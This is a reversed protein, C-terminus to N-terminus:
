VFRMIHSGIGVTTDHQNVCEEEAIVRLKHPQIELIRITTTITDGAFVPAPFRIRDYGLSVNNHGMKDEIAESLLTSATSMFGVLMAGHALPKGYVSKAAYEPDIHLPADDGSVDAFQQILEATVERVYEAHWSPDILKMAERIRDAEPEAMGVISSM